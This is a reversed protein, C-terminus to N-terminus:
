SLPMHSTKDSVVSGALGASRLSNGEMRLISSKPPTIWWQRIRGESLGLKSDSDRWAQSKIRAWSGRMPRM